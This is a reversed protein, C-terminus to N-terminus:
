SEKLTLWNVLKIYSSKKVRALDNNEVKSLTHRSLGIEDAAQSISLRDKARIKRINWSLNQDITFLHMM